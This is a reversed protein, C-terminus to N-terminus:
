MPVGIAAGLVVIALRGRRRPLLGAIAAPLAYIAGLAAVSWDWVLNPPHDTRSTSV